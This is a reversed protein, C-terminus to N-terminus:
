NLWLVIMMMMMVTKNQTNEGVLHVHPDAGLGALHLNLETEFGALHIQKHMQWKIADEPESGLAMEM